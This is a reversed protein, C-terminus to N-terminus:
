TAPVHGMVRLPTSITIVHQVRIAFVIALLLIFDLIKKRLKGLYSQHTKMRNEIGKRIFRWVM